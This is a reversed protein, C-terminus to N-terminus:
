SFFPSTTQFPSVQLSDMKTSVSPDKFHQLRLKQNQRFYKPLYLCASIVHFLVRMKIGIYKQIVKREIEEGKQSGSLKESKQTSSFEESVLSIGKELPDGKPKKKKKKKKLVPLPPQVFVTQIEAERFEKPSPPQNRLPQRIQIHKRVVPDSIFNEDQSVKRSPQVQKGNFVGKPSITCWKKM